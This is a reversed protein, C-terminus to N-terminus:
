NRSTYMDHFARLSRGSESWSWWWYEKLFILICIDIDLFGDDNLQVKLYCQDREVKCLFAKSQFM